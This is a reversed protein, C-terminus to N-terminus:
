RHQDAVLAQEGALVDVEVAQRRTSGLEGALATGSHLDREVPTDGSDDRDGVGRTVGGDVRHARQV